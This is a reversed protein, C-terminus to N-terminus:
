INKIDQEASKFDISNIHEVTNFDFKVTYFLTYKIM